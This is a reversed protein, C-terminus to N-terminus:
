PSVAPGAGQPVQALASELEAIAARELPLARRLRAIQAQRRESTWTEGKKLAWGYPAVTVVCHEKDRLVENSMQEYLDAARLLHAAAPGDFECAVDRLYRAAVGRYQALCEYIWANGLMAGQRAKDDGQELAELKAVYADWAKFGVFYDGSQEAKAMEVAQRLAGVALERKSPRAEKPGTFVVVGWPWMTEVFTKAGGDRYPHLCIWEEGDRHYGVIVGDEESGYQVPVGRTISEVVAQRAEKVRPADDPKVEFVRVKWPLAQTSRAVCPFGCCPHPSSPCLEKHVQMRFALGSVGVLDDYTTGEGVAQMVAEQAAHVSSEKDGCFWGKVGELWVRDGERHVTTRM